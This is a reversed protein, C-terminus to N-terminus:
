YKTKCSMLCTGNEGAMTWPLPSSSLEMTCSFPMCTKRQSSFSTFLTEVVDTHIGELLVEEQVVDFVEIRVVDEDGTLSLFFTSKLLFIGDLEEIQVNDVQATSFTFITFSFYM